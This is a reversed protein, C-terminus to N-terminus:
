PAPVTEVEPACVVDLSEVKGKDVLIRFVRETVLSSGLDSTYSVKGGGDSDVGLVVSCWSCCGSVLSVLGVYSFDLTQSQSM